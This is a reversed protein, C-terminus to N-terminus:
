DFTPIACFDNWHVMDLIGGVAECCRKQKFYAESGCRHSHPEMGYVSCTKSRLTMKISNVFFPVTTLEFPPSVM